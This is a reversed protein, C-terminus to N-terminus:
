NASSAIALGRVIAAGAQKLVKACENMTTGSTFIDDVLLVTKGNVVEPRVVQFARKINRRRELLPLDWLPETARCRILADAIWSYRKELMWERFIKESQNYGRIQLRDRHLPVPLVCEIGDFRQLPLYRDLLWHLCAIYKLDGQFKIGQIVKKAGQVYDCLVMCTDLDYIRHAALNIERVALVQTLCASCWQGHVQVGAKCVPCKPPYLLDLIASKLSNLGM